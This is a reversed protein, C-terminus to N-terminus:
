VKAGQPMNPSAAMVPKNPEQAPLTYLVTAVEPKLYKKAVAQVEAATVSQINEIYKEQIQWPLGVAELMGVELGQAFLSDESYVCSAVAQMKVKKLEADVVGQTQILSIQQNIAEEIQMPGHYEAATAYISFLEDKRLLPNYSIDISSVITQARLLQKQLRGSNGGNLIEALVILAYTEASNEATKLSPVPFGMYVLPTAVNAKLTMKKSGGKLGPRAKVLPLVRQPTDGVYRKALEFVAEPKVDGVVVWIANNPAYWRQYWNRLEELRMEQLDSMWGIIPHEYSSAINAMASFYEQSLSYPDDEVRMRREEIIVNREKSFESEEFNLNNLRDAELKLCLELKDAAIKEFYLTYDRTTFANQKGGEHSILRSFEGQPYARTGKFMMHELAHSLGSVGNPEYGSGVKYWFQSVVTPSRHDEVVLVKFGNDLVMETIVSKASAEAMISALGLLLGMNILQTIRM